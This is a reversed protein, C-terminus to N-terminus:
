YQEEYDKYMVLKVFLEKEHTNIKFQADLQNNVFIIVLHM